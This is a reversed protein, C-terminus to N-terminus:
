TLINKPLRSRQQWNATPLLIRHWCLQLKHSGATEQCIHQVLAGLWSAPVTPSKM